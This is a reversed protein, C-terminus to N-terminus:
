RKGDGGAKILLADLARTPLLRKLWSFVKTPTTIPYRIKPKKHKIIHLLANTVAEAKLVFPAKSEPTDLRAIMATYNDAHATPKDAIWRNFQAFANTRFNSIIPGPQILSIHINDQKVELRLTDAFGEIAFKSANYAGRYPM